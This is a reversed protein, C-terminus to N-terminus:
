LKEDRLLCRSAVARFITCGHHLWGLSKLEVHHGWICGLWWDVTKLLAQGDMKRWWKKHPFREFLKTAKQNRSKTPRFRRWTLVLVWPDCSAVLKSSMWRGHIGHFEVWPPLIFFTLWTSSVLFMMNSYMAYTFDTNRNDFKFILHLVLFLVNLKFLWPLLIFRSCELALKSVLFLVHTKRRRAEETQNSDFLDFSHRFDQCFPSWLEVLLPAYCVGDTEFAHRCWGFVWLIAMDKMWTVQRSKMGLLATTWESSKWGRIGCAPTVRGAPPSCRLKDNYAFGTANGCVWRFGDCQRLATPVEHADISSQFCFDHVASSM